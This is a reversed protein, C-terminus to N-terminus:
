PRVTKWTADDATQMQNLWDLLTVGQVSFSGPSLLMTHTEGPVFFSRSHDLPDLVTSSLSLVATQFADPSLAIYERITQDRLSSLLAMRDNPYKRALAPHIASFDDKVSPDISDMVAEYKWAHAWADRLSGPFADSRLMPGSDDVLSVKARPFLSRVLAYNLVAGFGGASVGTVVVQEPEPVTAAIRALFLEANV